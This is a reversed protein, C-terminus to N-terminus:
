EVLPEADQDEGQEADHAALLTLVNVINEPSALINANFFRIRYKWVVSGVLNGNQATNDISVVCTAPTYIQRDTLSLNVWAASDLVPYRRKDGSNRPLSVSTSRWPAVSVCSQLQWMQHSSTPTPDATDFTWALMVRGTFTTPASSVFRMASFELKFQSYQLSLSHLRSGVEFTPILPLATAVFANDAPARLTLMEMEGSVVPSNLLLGRPPGQPARRTRARRGRRNAM